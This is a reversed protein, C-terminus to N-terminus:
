KGKPKALTTLANDLLNRLAATSNADLALFDMKEPLRIVTMKHGSHVGVAFASKAPLNKAFESLEELKKDDDM